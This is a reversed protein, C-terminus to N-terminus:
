ELDTFVFHKPIYQVLKAPCDFLSIDKNKFNNYANRKGEGMFLLLAVKSHLLLKRSASMRGSPPKPSDQFSFYFLSDNQISHNPFLGAIHGDEGASLLVIDFYGGHQQLKQSYAELGFDDQATNYLFPFVNQMPITVKTQFHDRLIKYNADDSTPAVLREDVMFWFTKEWEIDQTSLLDFIPAVSRGGCVAITVTKKQSIIDQIQRAFEEMAQVFVEETKM